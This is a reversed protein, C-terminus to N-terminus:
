RVAEQVKITVTYRKDEYGSEQNAEKTFVSVITGWFAEHRYTPRTTAEPIVLVRRTMKAVACLSQLDESEAKTLTHLKVEHTRCLVESGPSGVLLLESKITQFGGSPQWGVGMRAIAWEHFAVPSDPDEQQWRVYRKTVTTPHVYVLVNGWPPVYATYTGLAAGFVPLLGADSEVVGTSVGSNDGASWRFECDPSANAGILAFVNQATATLLDWTMTVPDLNVTRCKSFLRSNGLNSAPYASDVTISVTPTKGEGIGDFFAILITNTTTM